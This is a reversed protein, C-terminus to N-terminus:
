EIGEMSDFVHGCKPCTVMRALRLEEQLATERAAAEKAAEEREVKAKAAAIRAKAEAEKRAEIAASHAAERAVERATADKRAQEEAILQMEARHAKEKEDAEAKLRANEERVLRDEEAKAKAAAEEQLRVLREGEIRRAEDEAKRKNEVFHEQADLYAEIPEILGLVFRKVKDLAQGRRLSSDKMEKHQKVVAIRKDRLELRAERAQQMEVIQSEDTVVITKARSEWEAALNVAGSFDEVLANADLEALASEAVIAKLEDQRENM